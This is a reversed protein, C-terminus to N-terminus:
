HLEAGSKGGRSRLWEVIEVNGNDAAIDLPTRDNWGIWDIEAGRDLLVEATRRHRGHCAQWFAQTV